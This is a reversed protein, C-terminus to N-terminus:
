VLYKVRYWILAVWERWIMPVQALAGASPLWAPEPLAEVPVPTVRIGRAQFCLMARPMHARDTVLVISDIGRAALLAASNRANQWTDRSAPELILRAEPWLKRAEAAMLGAESAAENEPGRGSAGGSLLLPLHRQGAERLGVRLRRLGISNLRYGENAGEGVPRRGAGPVVVAAPEGGPLRRPLPPYFQRVVVPLTAVVLLVALM